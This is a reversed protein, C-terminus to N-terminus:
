YLPGPVSPEFVLGQTPVLPNVITIRGDPYVCAKAPGPSGPMAITRISGSACASVAEAVTSPSGGLDFAMNITYGTVLGLILWISYVAGTIINRANYRWMLKLSGM